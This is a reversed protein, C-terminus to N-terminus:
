SYKERLLDLFKPPLEGTDAVYTWDRPGSYFGVPSIVQASQNLLAGVFSFSSKGIVLIDAEQMLKWSELPNLETVIKISELESLSISFDEYELTFNSDKDIRNGGNKLYAMTEASVGSTSWHINGEHVDTHITFECKVELRDLTAQIPLLLSLFWETPVYRNSLVTKSILGRRIHVHIRCVKEQSSQPDDNISKFNSARPAKTFHSRINPYRLTLNVPNNIILLEHRNLVYNLFKRLSFYTFLAGPLQFFRSDHVQRTQHKKQCSIGGLNLFEILELVFIRKEQPTNLNDGPNSDFQLIPSNVFGMKFHRSLSYVDIIRVVQAGIGDKSQHNNFSLCVGVVIEM